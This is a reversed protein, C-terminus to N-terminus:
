SNPDPADNVENEFYPPPAGPTSVTAGRTNCTMSGNGLRTPVATLSFDPGSAIEDYQPGTLSVEFGGSVRTDSSNNTVQEGSVSATDGSMPDSATASLVGIAHRSSESGNRIVASGHVTGGNFGQDTPGAFVFMTTAHINGRADISHAGACKAILAEPEAVSGNPGGIKALIGTPPTIRYAEVLAFRLNALDPRGNTPVCGTGGNACYQLKAEIEYPAPGALDALAPGAITAVGTLALFSPVVALRFVSKM